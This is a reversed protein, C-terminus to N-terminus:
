FRLTGEIYFYDADKTGTGGNYVLGNLDNFNGDRLADATFLHAWGIKFVLDDSYHYKAWLGLEWGIDSGATQTLFSMQSFLPARRGQFRIHRPLEFRDVVGFYALDLGTEVFEIPFASLGTRLTWFNSLESMEDIFYSHVTNSFLRNFSLSSQPRQWPLFPNLWDWFSIDRNDEGDFYAAGLYIRPQWSVDFNYGVELEAAWANYKARNDGYNFPKFLFGAASADGLQYAAEFDYDFGRSVGHLRLGLTHLHSTGYDDLGRRSEIWELLPGNNTDRRDAADRVWFWYADVALAEIPQYRAYIGSFDTDGDREIPSREVLKSWFADITFPDAAYTLRVADFSLGAFEPHNSNDGALWGKGFVLEQRGVRLRLPAGFLDGAEIYAQYIEVDEISQARNDLGTAYNSRFDEGWVDFSDIEIFAAVQETLEATVNIRTRQVILSYDEGANDWDFFSIITQGGVPDGIPRGRLINGNWRVNNGILLPQSRTNFTNRWYNGRIRLEGGVSVSQLEAAAPLVAILMCFLASLLPRM